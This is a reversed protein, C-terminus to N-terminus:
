RCGGGEVRASAGSAAATLALASRRGGGRRRLVVEQSALLDQLVIEIRREGLRRFGGLHMTRRAKRSAALARVRHHSIHRVVVVLVHLGHGGVVGRLEAEGRHMSCAVHRSTARIEDRPRAHLGDLSPQESADPQMGPSTSWSQHSM